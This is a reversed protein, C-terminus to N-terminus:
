NSGTNRVSMLRLGSLQRDNERQLAQSSLLLESQSMSSSNLNNRKIGAPEVHIRQLDNNLLKGVERGSTTGPASMTLAM